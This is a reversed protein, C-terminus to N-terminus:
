CRHDHHYRTYSRDSFTVADKSVNYLGVYEENPNFVLKNSKDGDDKVLYYTVGEYCHEIM